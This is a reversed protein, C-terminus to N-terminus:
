IMSPPRSPGRVLTRRPGPPQVDELLRVNGSPDVVAEFTRIM